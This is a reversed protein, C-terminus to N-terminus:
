LKSRWEGRLGFLGKSKLPITDSNSLKVKTKHSCHTNYRNKLRMLAIAIINIDNTLLPRRHDEEKLNIPFMKDLEM